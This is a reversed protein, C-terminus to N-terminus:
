VKKHTDWKGSYINTTCLGKTYKIYTLLSIKKRCFTLESSAGNFDISLLTNHTIVQNCLNLFFDYNVYGKRKTGM